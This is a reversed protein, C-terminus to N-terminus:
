LTATNTIGELKIHLVVINQFTSKQPRFPSPSRRGFYKCTAAKAIGKLEIHLMVMNEFVQIKVKEGWGLTWHPHSFTHSCLIQHWTEANTFRNLKIHYHETFISNQGKSGLTLPPLTMPNASLINSGHQQM